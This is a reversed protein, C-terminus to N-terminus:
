ESNTHDELLDSKSFSFYESIKANANIRPMLKGSVWNSVSQQSVGTIKAIDEQTINRDNMIKILNKSFIIKTDKM